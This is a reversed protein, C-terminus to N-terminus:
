AELDHQQHSVSLFQHQDVGGGWALEIATLRPPEVVKGALLDEASDRGAPGGCRHANMCDAPILGKGDRLGEAARLRRLEGAKQDLSARKGVTRPEVRGNLGCRFLQHCPQLVLERSGGSHTPGCSSDLPGQEGPM